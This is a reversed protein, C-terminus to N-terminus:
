TRTYEHKDDDQEELVSSGPLGKLPEDSGLGKDDDVPYMITRKVDSPDFLYSPNTAEYEDRVGLGAGDAPPSAATNPWHKSQGTFVDEAAPEECHLLGHAAPM